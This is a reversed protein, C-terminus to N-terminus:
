LVAKIKDILVQFEDSCKQVVRGCNKAAASGLAKRGQGPSLLLDLSKALPIYYHEKPHPHSRVVSWQDPLDYDLGSLLWVELEEVAAVAFFNRGDRNFQEELNDLKKRRDESGDRDVCLIYINVMGNYQDFIEQLRAPNTAESIGGLLPDTCTIVKARPKGLDSFLRQFLPTIIYQDHRFDEPILMVNM